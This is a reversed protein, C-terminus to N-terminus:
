LSPIEMCEISGSTQLTYLTTDPFPNPAGASSKATISLDGYKHTNCNLDVSITYYDDGIGGYRNDNGSQIRLEYKTSSQKKGSIFFSGNLAMNEIRQMFAGLVERNEDLFITFKNRKDTGGPPAKYVIDFAIKYKPMYPLFALAEESESIRTVHSMDSETEYEIHNPMFKSILILTSDSSSSIHMPKAFYVRNTEGHALDSARYTVTTTGYDAIDTSLNWPHSHIVTQNTTYYAVGGSVVKARYKFGTVRFIVGTYEGEPPLATNIVDAVCPEIGTCKVELYASGDLINVTTNDDRILDLNLRVQYSDVESGPEGVHYTGGFVTGVILILFLFLRKM